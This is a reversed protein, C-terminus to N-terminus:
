WDGTAQTWADTPVLNEIEDYLDNVNEAYKENLQAPVNVTEPMVDLIPSQNKTIALTRSSGGILPNEAKMEDVNVTLVQSKNVAKNLAKLNKKSVTFPFEKTVGSKTYSLNGQGSKDITISYSYQYPPSVPGKSYTYVMSMWKYNQASVTGTLVFLLLILFSKKM